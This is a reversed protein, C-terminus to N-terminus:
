VCIDCSGPMFHEQQRAVEHRYEFIGVSEFLFHVPVVSASGFITM